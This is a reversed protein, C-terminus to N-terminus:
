WQRASLITFSLWFTTTPYRLRQALVFWITHATAVGPLWSTPITTRTGHKSRCSPYFSKPVMLSLLAQSRGFQYWQQEAARGGTINRRELEARRANLYEWCVPFRYALDDPQILGARSRREGPVLEYPFIMWTNAEPRAYPYLTVDLLCPRLIGREIPWDRDNWRLTVTEPEEAVSNFIYISDASTQVGVFIEGLGGLRSPFTERIRSFLARTEEDVFQWPAEGLDDASIETVPGSQGYRWEELPGALEFDVRERGGRDFVLISTYNATGAGFVQKAGFHM